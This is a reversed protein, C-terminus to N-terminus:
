RKDKVNNEGKNLLAILREANEKRTNPEVMEILDKLYDKMGRLGREKDMAEILNIIGLKLYANEKILKLYETM